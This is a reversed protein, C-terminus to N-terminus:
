ASDDNIQASQLSQRQWNYAIPGPGSSPTILSLTLLLDGSSAEQRLAQPQEKKTGCLSCRVRSQLNPPSSMGPLSSILSLHRGPFHKQVQLTRGQRGSLGRSEWLLAPLGPLPKEVAMQLTVKRLFGEDYYFFSWGAKCGSLSPKLELHSVEWSHSCPFKAERARLKEETM